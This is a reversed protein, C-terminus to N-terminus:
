TRVHRAEEALLAFSLLHPGSRGLSHSEMGLREQEDLHAEPSTGAEESRNVPTYRKGLKNKSSSLKQTKILGVNWLLSRSHVRLKWAAGKEPGSHLCM